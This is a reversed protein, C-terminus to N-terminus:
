FVDERWQEWDITCAMTAYAVAAESVGRFDALLRYFKESDKGSLAVMESKEIARDIRQELDGIWKALREQLDEAPEAEPNDSWNKFTSAISSRWKDIDDHLSGAMIEMQGTGGTEVLQEIRYALVRLSALLAQVKEPKNKPFKKHDIAAGWSELKAPLTKMEHRCFATKWREIFTSTHQPELNMQSTLYRASRFLRRLLRRIAKEPRPSVPIYAVLVLLALSLAFMLATNAVSLFSYSQTNSIATVVVFMALGFARAVAQRPASFLYCIAFTVFFIMLGLGAFSSIKPMVFIYLISSFAISLTAPVFLRPVSAQPRSALTMGLPGAMIVFGNGGPVQTYIWVLYALWIGAMVRIGAVLRDLDLAFGPSRVGTDTWQPESSGFGKLDQMTDFLARTLSELQQIHKRTVALAAKHFHSLKHVADRDLTLDIAKPAMDPADGALMRDIGDFRRTLETSLNELDPLLLNLDLEQVDKLSDKWRELIEMMETSQKKFRRWKRRLEWVEVSDMESASLLQDFRSQAQVVDTILSQAEEDSPKNGSIAGLCARYLRHQTKALQRTAAAFDALATSPWLLVSVLSYVLIGLGTVEARLLATEFANIPNPGADLCIIVCVFGAVYWFYQYKNDDMMYTCFGLFASLAGMFWWREQPFLAILILAVIVAVLTGLMRMAGKQWSQGVTSLSIFAVTFGAWMPKEWDMSLAIGYAITMALATKIAEKAKRSLIM